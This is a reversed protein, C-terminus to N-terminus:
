RIDSVTEIRTGLAGASAALVLGVALVRDPRTLALSLLASRRAPAPM